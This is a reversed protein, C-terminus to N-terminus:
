KEKITKIIAKLALEPENRVLDLFLYSGGLFTKTITDFNETTFVKLYRYFMKEGSATDLEEVMNSFTNFEEGDMHLIYGILAHTNPKCFDEDGYDMSDHTKPNYFYEGWDPDDNTKEYGLWEALIIQDQRNM